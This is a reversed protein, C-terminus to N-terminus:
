ACYHEYEDEIVEISEGQDELFLLYENTTKAEPQSRATDTDKPRYTEWLEKMM